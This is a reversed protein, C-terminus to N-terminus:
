ALELCDTRNMNSVMNIEGERATGMEGGDSEESGCTVFELKWFNRETLTNQTLALIM